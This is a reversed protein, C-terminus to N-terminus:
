RGHQRDIHLSAGGDLTVIRGRVDARLRGAKFSGLPVRGDVPGGSAVQRTALDVTVDRTELRTGDAASFRVPGITAVQERKIDYRGADAVVRSPGDRAALEATIGSLEVIPTASNRQLARAASIVFKQGKSDEGRYIAREVLLREKASGVQDKSLLFSFEEQATLPLILFTLALAGAAIPLAIKLVTM